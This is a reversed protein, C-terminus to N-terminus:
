RRYFMLSRFRKGSRYYKSTPLDAFKFRRLVPQGNESGYAANFNIGYWQASNVEIIPAYILKGDLKIECVVHPWKSCQFTKAIFFITFNSGSTAEIYRVGLRADERSDAEDEYEPLSTGDCRITVNVSPVEDLKM